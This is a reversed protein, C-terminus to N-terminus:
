FPSLRSLSTGHVDTGKGKIQKNIIVAVDKCDKYPTKFTGFVLFGQSNHSNMVVACHENKMTLYSINSAMLWIGFVKILM